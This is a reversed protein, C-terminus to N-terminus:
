GLAQSAANSVQIRQQMELQMALQADIRGRLVVLLSHLGLLLLKRSLAVAAHAVKDLLDM